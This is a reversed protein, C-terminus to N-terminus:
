DASLAMLQEFAPPDIATVQYGEAALADLFSGVGHHSSVVGHQEILWVDLVAALVEPMVGLETEGLRARPLRDLDVGPEGPEIPYSM